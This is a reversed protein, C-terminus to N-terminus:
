LPLHRHVGGREPAESGPSSRGSVAFLPPLFNFFRFTRKKKKNIKKNPALEFKGNERSILEQYRKFTAPNQAKKQLATENIEKIAV